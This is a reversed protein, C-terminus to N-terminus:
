IIFRGPSYPALFGASSLNNNIVQEAIKESFLPITPIALHFAAAIYLNEVQPHWGVVPQYDESFPSPASWTRMIRIPNFMPFFKKMQQNLAPMGWASSERQIEQAPQIANSILLCGNKHQGVGLTISKNDGHVSEYFGSTGVHHQLLRPLPESIMAEAKTFFIPLQMGITKLVSNTWAGLALIIVKGYYQQNGTTVGITKNKELLLNTIKTHHVIRAGNKQAANIYGWGFKFPNVHGEQALIAGVINNMKLMPELKRVSDVDLLEAQLSENKFWTIKEIESSLSETSSYLTIHGPQEWELDIELEEGLQPLRSYGQKVQHLYESTECDFLQARGACAASTGSGLGGSELLLTKLKAKSFQYALAAGSFGGGVIIIDYNEKNM